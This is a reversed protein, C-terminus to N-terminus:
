LRYQIETVINSVFGVLKGLLTSFLIVIFMIAIMAVIMVWFSWNGGALGQQAAANAAQLLTIM